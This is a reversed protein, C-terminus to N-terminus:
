QVAKLNWRDVLYRILPSEMNVIIGRSHKSDTDQSDVTYCGINEFTTRFRSAENRSELSLPMYKNQWSKVAEQLEKPFSKVPMNSLIFEQEENSVFGNRDTRGKLKAVITAAFLAMSVREFAGSRGTVYDLLTKMKQFGKLNSRYGLKRERNLMEHPDANLAVLFRALRRNDKMFQITRRLELHTGKPAKKVEFAKREALAANINAVMASEQEPTVSDMLEPLSKAEQKTEQSLSAQYANWTANSVFKGNIRHTM